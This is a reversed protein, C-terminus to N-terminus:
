GAVGVLLGTAYLALLGALVGLVSDGNLTRGASDRMAPLLQQVVQVVAGAAVGLLLAAVAPNVAATGLWAGLVVPAGAILGLGVLRSLPAEGQGSAAVIAFGETSNHLAFGIVLSAGLALEGVGYASGIALGEGLNHVGIGVAVLLALRGGDGGTVDARLRRSRLGADAATLTLYSLAAGLFVLTPGGLAQSGQGALEIGEALSDLALFALMGVTFAMLARRWRQGSRRVFPAWLMGIAVPIIGVYVGLLTVLGLLELGTGPTEVAVPIEHTVAAGTSTLLFIEYAEGTLWPYPIHLTQADLRGMAAQNGTFDVYADNVSVQAIRLPDPGDNRVTLEITGPSLVTREVVLLEAPPGRREGLGPAGILALLAVTVAIFVLPFIALLLTTGRRRAPAPRTATATDVQHM